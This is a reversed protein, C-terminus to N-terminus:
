SGGIRPDGNICEINIMDRGYNNYTRPEVLQSHIDIIQQVTQQLDQTFIPEVNMEEDLYAALNKLSELSGSDQIAAIEKEAKAHKKNKFYIIIKLRLEDIKRLAESTFKKATEGASTKIFETFALKLIEAASTLIPDTM